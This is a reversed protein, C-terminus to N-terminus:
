KDLVKQTPMGKWYSKSRFHQRPVGRWTLQSQSHWTNQIIYIYLITNCNWFLFAQFFFHTSHKKFLKHSSRGGFLQDFCKKPRTEVRHQQNEVSKTSKLSLFIWYSFTDSFHKLSTKLYPRCRSAPQIGSPYRLKTKKRENKGNQDLESHKQNQELKRCQTVNLVKDM